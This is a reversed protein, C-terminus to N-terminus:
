QVFPYIEDGIWYNALVIALITGLAWLMWRCRRWVDGISSSQLPIDVLYAACYLVNAFLGLVSMILLSNWTMAPRFHPWTAVIWAGVVILLALNYFLRRMEWFRLANTFLARVPGSSPDGFTQPPASNSADMSNLKKRGCACYM